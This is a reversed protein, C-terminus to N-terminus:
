KPLTISSLATRLRTGADLFWDILEEYRDVDTVAAGDKYDAM